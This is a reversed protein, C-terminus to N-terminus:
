QLDYPEPTENNVLARQFVQLHTGHNATDFLLLKDNMWSVSTQLCRGLPAGPLISTRFVNGNSTQCSLDRAAGVWSTISVQLHKSRVSIYLGKVKPKFKEQTDTRM